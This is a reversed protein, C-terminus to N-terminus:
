MKKGELTVILRTNFLLWYYAAMAGIFHWLIHLPWVSPLSNCLNQESEWVIRGLVMILSARLAYKSDAVHRWGYGAAGEMFLFVTFGQVFLEYSELVAYVYMLLLSGLVVMMRLVKKYNKTWSHYQLKGMVCTAMFCIMPAEDLLQMSRRMTGHYLFSGVGIVALWGCAAKMWQTNPVDRIDMFSRSAVLLFVVSTMANWFEAVYHSVGYHPECFQHIADM